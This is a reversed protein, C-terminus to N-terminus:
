KLAFESIREHNWNDQKPRRNCEQNETDSGAPSQSAKLDVFMRHRCPRRLCSSLDQTTADPSWGGMGRARKRCADCGAAFLAFNLWEELGRGLGRALERM